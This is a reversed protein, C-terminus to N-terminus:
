LEMLFCLFMLLSVDILHSVPNRVTGQLSPRSHDLHGEARHDLLPLLRLSPAVWSPM